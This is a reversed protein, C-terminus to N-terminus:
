RAHDEIVTYDRFKWRFRGYIFCRVFCVSRDVKVISTDRSISCRSCFDTSELFRAEATECHPSTQNLERLRELRLNLFIRTHKVRTCVSRNRSRTIWVRTSHVYGQSRGHFLSSEGRHDKESRRSRLLAGHARFQTGNGYQARTCVSVCLAPSIDTGRPLGM